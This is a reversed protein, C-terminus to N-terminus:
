LIWNITTDVTVDEYILLLKSYTSHPDVFEVISFHSWNLYEYFLKNIIRTEKYRPCCLFQLFYLLPM